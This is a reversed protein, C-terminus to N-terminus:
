SQAIIKAEGYRFRELVAEDAEPEVREEPELILATSDNLYVVCEPVLVEYADRPFSERTTTRELVVAWQEGNVFMYLRVVEHYNGGNNHRIQSGCNCPEQYLVQTEQEFM